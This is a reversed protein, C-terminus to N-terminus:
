PGPCGHPDAEAGRRLRGQRLVATRRRRRRWCEGGGKDAQPERALPLLRYRRCRWSLLTGMGSSSTTGPDEPAEEEEEEKAEGSLLLRRRRRRRRMRWRRREGEEEKRQKRWSAQKSREIQEPTKLSAWVHFELAAAGVGEGGPLLPVGLPPVSAAVYGVTVAEVWPPGPDELVGPRRGESVTKQARRGSYTEGAVVKEVGHHTAATLAMRM